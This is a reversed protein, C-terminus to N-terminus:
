ESNKKSPGLNVHLFLCFCFSRCRRDLTPPAAGRRDMLQLAFCGRWGGGGGGTGPGIVAPREWIGGRYTRRREAIRAGDEAAVYRVDAPWDRHVSQHWSKSISVNIFVSSFSVQLRAAEGCRLGRTPRGSLPPPAARWARDRALWAERASGTDPSPIKM